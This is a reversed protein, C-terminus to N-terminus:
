STYWRINLSEKAFGQEEIVAFRGQAVEVGAGFMACASPTLWREHVPIRWPWGNAESGQAPDEGLLEAQDQRDIIVKTTYARSSDGASSPTPVIMMAM